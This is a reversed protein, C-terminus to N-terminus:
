WGGVTTGPLAKPHTTGPHEYPAQFPKSILNRARQPIGRGGGGGVFLLVYNFLSLLSLFWASRVVMLVGVHSCRTRRCGMQAREQERWSGAFARGLGEPPSRALTMRAHQMIEFEVAM